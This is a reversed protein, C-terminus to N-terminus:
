RLLEMVSDCDNCAMTRRQSLRFAINPHRRLRDELRFVYFNNLFRKPIVGREVSDRVYAWALRNLNLLRVHPFGEELMLQLAGLYKPDQEDTGLLLTINGLVQSGHLSCDLYSRLKALTTNCEQIGDGRRLHFLGVIKSSSKLLHAIELQWLRTAIEVLHDPDREQYYVCGSTQNARHSTPLATRLASTLNNPPILGQRQLSSWWWYADIQWVFPQDPQEQSHAILTHFDALTQEPEITQWFTPPSNASYLRHNNNNNNSPQNSGLEFLAPKGNMAWTVNVYDSWLLDDELPIQHNHAASLVVHPKPVHVTEACLFGAINLLQHFIYLRDQLGAQFPCTYIVKHIRGHPCPRWCHHQLPLPLPSSTTNTNTNDTTTQQLSTPAFSYGELSKWKTALLVTTAALLALFLGLRKGHPSSSLAVVDPRIIELTM